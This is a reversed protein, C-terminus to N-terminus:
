EAHSKNSIINHSVETSEFCVYHSDLVKTLKGTNESIRKNKSGTLQYHETVNPADRLNYHAAFQDLILSMEGATMFYEDLANQNNASGKIGGLVKMARNQQELAHDAGIASFPVSSKIMSFHEELIQWTKVDKEKLEIMWSLYVPTLRAYYLM